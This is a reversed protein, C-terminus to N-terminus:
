CDYLMREVITYCDKLLRKVFKRSDNLM